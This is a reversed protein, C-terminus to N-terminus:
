FFTDPVYMVGPPPLPTSLRYGGGSFNRLRYGGGRFFIKPLFHSFKTLFHCKKSIKQGVRSIKVFRSYFKMFNKSVGGGLIKRLGRAGGWSKQGPEHITPYLLKLFLTMPFFLYHQRSYFFLKSLFFSVKLIKIEKKM